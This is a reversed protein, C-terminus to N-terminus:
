AVEKKKDDGQGLKYRFLEENFYEYAQWVKNVEKEQDYINDDIDDMKEYFRIQERRAKAIRVLKFASTDKNIIQESLLM